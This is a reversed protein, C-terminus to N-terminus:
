KPNTKGVDAAATLFVPIVVEPTNKSDTKVIVQGSVRPSDKTAKASVIIALSENQNLSLPLKTQESSTKVSIAPSQATDISLISMKEQGTNKLVVEQTAVEDAKVQNFLVNSPLADLDVKVLAAITLQAIPKNPDNSHVYITKMQKDKRYASNFKIEVQGSEGPKITKSSLVAATCGCSTKVENINLVEDGTNKFTFIHNVIKNQYIQGFDFSTDPFTIHPSALASAPYLIFSVISVM